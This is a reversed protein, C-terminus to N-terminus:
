GGNLPLAPMDSARSRSQRKPIRAEKLACERVLAEIRQRAQALEAALVGNTLKLDDRSQEAAIARDRLVVAEAIVDDLRERAADAGTEAALRNTRESAFELEVQQLRTRLLEFEAKQARLAEDRLHAVEEAVIKANEAGGLEEELAEIRTELTAILSLADRSQTELTGAAAEAQRRWRDIEDAATSHMAQVCHQALRRLHSGAAAVATAIHEELPAPLPQQEAEAKARDILGQYRDVRGGHREALAYPSPERGQRLDERIVELARDDTLNPRRGM